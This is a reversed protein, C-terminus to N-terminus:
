WFLYINNEIVEVSCSILRWRLTSFRVLSDILETWKGDPMALKCLKELPCMLFPLRCPEVCVMGSLCRSEITLMRLFSISCCHDAKFSFL